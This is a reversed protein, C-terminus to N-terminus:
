GASAKTVQVGLTRQLCAAFMDGGGQGPGGMGGMGMGMDDGYDSPDYSDNSPGDFTM